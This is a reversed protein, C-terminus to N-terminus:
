AEAELLTFRAVQKGEHEVTEQFMKWPRVWDQDPGDEHHYVVMLEMTESHRAVGTVRYLGGKFHRYLGRPIM